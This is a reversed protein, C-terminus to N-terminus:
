VQVGSPSPRRWARSGARECAVHSRASFPIPIEPTRGSIGTASKRSAVVRPPLLVPESRGAAVITAGGVANSRVKRGAQLVEVEHARLGLGSRAHLTRQNQLPRRGTHGSSRARHRRPAARTGLSAEVGNPASCGEIRRCGSPQRGRHTRSGGGVPSTPRRHPCTRSVPWSRQKPGVHAIDKTGVGHDSALDFLACRRRCSRAESPPSAVDAMTPRRRSPDHPSRAAITGCADSVRNPRSDKSRTEFSAASCNPGVRAGAGPTRSGM